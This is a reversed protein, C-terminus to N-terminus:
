LSIRGSAVMLTNAQSPPRRTRYYWRSLLFESDEILVECLANPTVNLYNVNIVAREGLDANANDAALNFAAIHYALSWSIGPEYTGLVAVDIEVPKSEVQFLTLLLMFFDLM